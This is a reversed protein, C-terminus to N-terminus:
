SRTRGRITCVVRRCMVIKVPVRCHFPYGVQVILGRNSCIGTAVEARTGGELTKIAVSPAESAAGRGILRRGVGSFSPLRLTLAMRETVGEARAAGLFAPWDASLPISVQDAGHIQFGRSEIV